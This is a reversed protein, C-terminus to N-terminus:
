KNGLYGQTDKNRDNACKDMVFCLLLAGDSNRTVLVISLQVSRDGTRVDPPIARNDFTTDGHQGEASTGFGVFTDHVAHGVQHHESVARRETPGVGIPGGSGGPGGAGPVYHVYPVRYDELAWSVRAPRPCSRVRRFGLVADVKLGSSVYNGLLALLCERRTLQGPPSM